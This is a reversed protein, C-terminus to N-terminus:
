VHLMDKLIVLTQLVKAEGGGVSLEDLVSPRHQFLGGSEATSTHGSNANRNTLGNHHFIIFLLCLGHITSVDYCINL